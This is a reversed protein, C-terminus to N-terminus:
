VVIVSKEDGEVFFERIRSAFNVGGHYLGEGWISIKQSKEASKAKM